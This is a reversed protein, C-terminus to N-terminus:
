KKAVVKAELRPLLPAKEVASTSAKGGVRIETEASEYRMSPWWAAELRVKYMGPRVRRGGRDTLDWAVAYRGWDISAGTNGDTEFKSSKGWESLNVQKEKAFGSFGSVYLTKVFAGKADEVWVATQPELEDQFGLVFTVEVRDGQVGRIAHERLGYEGYVLAAQAADPNNKVFDAWIGRGKKRYGFGLQYVAENRISDPLSPNKSLTELISLGEDMKGVFFPMQVCVIAYFLQIGPDGPRMSRAKGMVRAVEFALNTRWNTDDHIREDYGIGAEQALAQALLILIDADTTDQEAAKRFSEVALTWKRAVM